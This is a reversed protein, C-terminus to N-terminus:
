SCAATAGNKALKNSNREALRRMARNMFIPARSQGEAPNFDPSEAVRHGNLAPSASESSCPAPSAETALEVDAAASSESRSETSPLPTKPKSNSAPAHRKALDRAIKAYRGRARIAASVAPHLAGELDDGRKTFFGNKGIWIEFNYALHRNVFLEEVLFIEEAPILGKGYWKSLTVVIEGYIDVETSNPVIRFTEFVRTLLAAITIM